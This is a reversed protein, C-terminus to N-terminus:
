YYESPVITIDDVYAREPLTILFVTCQAIDEPELAGPVNDQMATNVSGPYIAAVRIGHPKLEQGLSESWGRLGWKSATYTAHGASTDKGAWSAINIIWGQRKYM